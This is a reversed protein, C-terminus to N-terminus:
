FARILDMMRGRKEIETIVDEATYDEFLREVMLRTEEDTMREEDIRDM